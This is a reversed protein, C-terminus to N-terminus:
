VTPAVEMDTITRTTLNDVSDRCLPCHRNKALWQDICFQHCLHKCNPLVSCSDGGKFQKLCILCYATCRLIIEGGNKQQFDVGKTTRRSTKDCQNQSQQDVVQDSSLQNELDGNNTSDNAQFFLCCKVLVGIVLVIAFGGFYSAVVVWFILAPKM